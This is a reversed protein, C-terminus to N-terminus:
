SRSNDPPNSGRTREDRREEEDVWSSTEEGCHNCFLTSIRRGRTTVTHTIKTNSTRCVPCTDRRM